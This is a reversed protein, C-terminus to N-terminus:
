SSIKGPYRFAKSAFSSFKKGKASHFLKEEDNLCKLWAAKKQEQFANTAHFDRRNQWCPPKRPLFFFLLSILCWRRADMSWILTNDDIIMLTKHTLSIKARKETLTIWFSSPFALRLGLHTYDENKMAMFRKNEKRSESRAPSSKGTQKKLTNAWLEQSRSFIEGLLVLSFGCRREKKREEGAFQQVNQLHQPRMRFQKEEPFEWFCNEKKRRAALAIFWHFLKM